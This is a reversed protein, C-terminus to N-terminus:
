LGDKYIKTLRGCQECEIYYLKEDILVRTHQCIKKDFAKKAEAFSIVLSEENDM